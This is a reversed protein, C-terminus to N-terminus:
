RASWVPNGQLINALQSPFAQKDIPKGLYSHFGASRAENMHSLHTTYAVVPVGDFTPDAQIMELIEYGNTFPMELDLFIADPRADLSRLSQQIDHVDLIVGAEAGLSLLLSRLVAVSTQDDEIILCRTGSFDPM